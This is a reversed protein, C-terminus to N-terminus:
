QAGLVQGSSADVWVTVVRGSSQVIKVSYRDGRTQVKLVKGPYQQTAIASAQAKSVSNQALLWSSPASTNAPPSQSPMATACASFLAISLAMLFALCPLRRHHPSFTVM